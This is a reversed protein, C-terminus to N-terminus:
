ETSTRRTAAESRGRAGGGRGAGEGRGRLCPVAEAQRKAADYVLDRVDSSLSFVAFISRVPFKTANMLVFPCIKANVILHYASM